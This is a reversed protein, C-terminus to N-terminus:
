YTQYCESNANEHFRPDMFITPDESVYENILIAAVEILDNKEESSIVSPLVFDDIINQLHTCSVNDNVECISETSSSKISVNAHQSM